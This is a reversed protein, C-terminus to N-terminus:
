VFRPVITKESQSAALEAQAYTQLLEALHTHENEQAYDLPSNGKSDRVNVFAGQALRKRAELFQEVTQQKGLQGVLHLVTEHKDTLQSNVSLGNDHLHQLVLEPRNSALAGKIESVIASSVRSVPRTYPMANLSQAVVCSLVGVMLVCKGICM